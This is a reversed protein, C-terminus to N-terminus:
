RASCIGGRQDFTTPPTGRSTEFAYPPDRDLVNNVGFSAAVNDSVDWSALLDHSFYAPAGTYSLFEAGSCARRQIIRGAFPAAFFLRGGRLAARSHIHM